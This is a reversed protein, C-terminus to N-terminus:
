VQRTSIFMIFSKVAKMGQQCLFSFLFFLLAFMTASYSIVGECNETPIGLPLAFTELNFTIM